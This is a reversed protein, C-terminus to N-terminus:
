EGEGILKCSIKVTAPLKAVEEGWYGCDILNDEFVKRATYVNVSVQVPGAIKALMEDGIRMKEFQAKGAGALEATQDAVYFPGDESDVGPAPEGYYDVSITIAEGSQKLKAAAADTLAIDVEYAPVDLAAFAPAALATSLVLAAAFRM